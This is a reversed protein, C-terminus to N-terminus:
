WCESIGSNNYTNYIYINYCSKLGVFCKQSYKEAPLIKEGWHMGKAKRKKRMCIRPHTYTPAHTHTHTHTHAHTHTSLYIHTTYPGQWNQTPTRSITYIRTHQANYYRTYKTHTLTLTHTYPKGQEVSSRTVWLCLLFAEIM